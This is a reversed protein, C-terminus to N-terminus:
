AHLHNKGEVDVTLGFGIAKAFLELSVYYLNDRRFTRCGRGCDRPFDRHNIVKSDSFELTHLDNLLVISKKNDLDLRFGLDFGFDQADM